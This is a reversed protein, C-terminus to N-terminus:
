YILAKHQLSYLVTDYSKKFLDLVQDELQSGIAKWDIGLKEIGKYVCEAEEMNSDLTRSVIGHDMFAALAEEPITSIQFFFM